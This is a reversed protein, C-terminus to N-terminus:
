YSGSLLVEQSLRTGMTIRWVVLGESPREAVSMNACLGLLFSSM